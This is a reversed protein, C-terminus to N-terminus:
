YEIIKINGTVEPFYTSILPYERQLIIFITKWGVGTNKGPSDGPVPSGLLSCDMPYCLTQCSQADLCVCMKSYNCPVRMTPALTLFAPSVGDQLRNDMKFIQHSSAQVRGWLSSVTEPSFWTEQLSGEWHIVFPSQLQSWAAGTLNVMSIDGRSM